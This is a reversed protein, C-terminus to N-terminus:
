RSVAKQVLNQQLSQRCICLCITIPLDADLSASRRFVMSTFLLRSFPLTTLDLNNQSIILSCVMKNRNVNIYIYHGHSISQLVNNFNISQLQNNFMTLILCLKLAILKTM